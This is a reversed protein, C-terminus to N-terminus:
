TARSASPFNNLVLTSSPLSHHGALLAGPGAIATLLFEGVDYNNGELNEKRSDTFSSAEGSISWGANRVESHVSLVGEAHFQNDNTSGSPDGSSSIGHEAARYDGAVSVDAEIRASQFARSQRVEVLWDEHVIVEGGETYEIVSLRHQGPAVPVVPTFVVVEGELRVFETVNIKDLYLFLNELVSEPVRDLQVRFPARTSRYAEATPLLEANWDRAATQAVAPPTALITLAAACHM